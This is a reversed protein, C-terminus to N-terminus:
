EPQFNNDLDKSEEKFFYKDIELNNLVCDKSTVRCNEQM